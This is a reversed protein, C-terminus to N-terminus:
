GSKKVEPLEFRQRGVGPLNVVAAYHEGPVPLLDFVGMGRHLSSFSTVEKDHSDVIIGKLDVGRGDEGVAKFGVRGTLGAVLYGGEPMFQCDIKEPRSVALPVTVRMTPDTKDEAVLTIGNPTTKDPLTFSTRFTGDAGTQADGHYLTKKGDLVKLRIDKQRAPKADADTLQVALSVDGASVRHSEKVLWYRQSADGIAFSRHFFCAPGTNQMWNTYAYVAYRGSSLDESSLPIQGWSLGFQIPFSMRKVLKDSDSILEVYLLGSPSWTYNSAQFLYAKFWMTDGVAYYPKDFHLYLKENPLKSNFSDVLAIIKQM